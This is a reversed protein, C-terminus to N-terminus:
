LVFRPRTEDTHFQPASLCFVIQPLIKRKGLMKKWSFTCNKKGYEKKPNINKLLMSAHQLFRVCHQNKEEIKINWVSKKKKRWVSFSLYNHCLIGLASVFSEILGRESSSSVKVKSRGNTDGVPTWPKQIQWSARLRYFFSILSDFSILLPTLPKALQLWSMYPSSKLSFGLDFAFINRLQLLYGHNKM